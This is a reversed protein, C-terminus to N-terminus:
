TFHHYLKLGPYFKNISYALSMIAKNIFLYTALWMTNTKKFRILQTGM